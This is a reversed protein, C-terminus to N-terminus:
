AAVPQQQQQQQEQQQRQQRQRQLGGGDQASTASGPSLGRSGLLNIRHCRCSDERCCSHGTM